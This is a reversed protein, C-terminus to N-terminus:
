AAEKIAGNPANFHQAVKSEFYKWDIVRMDDDNNRCFAIFDLPCPVCSMLEGIDGVAMQVFWGRKGDRDIPRFMAFITPRCIVYGTRLYYVLDDAFNLGAYKAYNAQAVDFANGGMVLPSIM